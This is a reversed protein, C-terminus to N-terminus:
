APVTFFFTSGQGPISEAWIKGGHREVIRKCIALGLGTGPYENRHLRRFLGFIRENYKPDFGIGNDRVAITWVDEQLVATVAIKPPVDPQCYKLANSLLNQFVQELQTEDGSVFPLDSCTVTAGTEHISAHLAAASQAFAAQLNAQRATYPVDPQDHIARSYALLDHILHQMRSVGAEIFGSFKAPEPDNRPAYRRILLQSYINVTRLPEQLDHSAVYAFEELEQNAKRLDDETRKQDEIDTCTGFWSVVNGAVGIMPLARVLHWRWEGDHRRLRFEVEYTEGTELSRMWREQVREKDGPHVAHLWGTGLVEESSGGFYTTTQGNVYDVHGQPTATWVMQPISEALFRYRMEDDRLSEEAARRATIDVYVSMIGIVRGSSDRMPATSVSIDIPTGDKRQRRIERGTFGQGSLDQARMSRHEDMKDEPIFPLPKGIVEEETWGFMQEAAPNWLTINGQATLAVIALPSASILARLQESLHLAQLEAQRLDTVDQVLVVFGRVRGEPDTDPSYTVVLDRMSGTHDALRPEFTVREGRLVRDLYPRARSYHDAGTMELVTKGVIDARSVGFFQEYARNVRRYVEDADIYSMLAPVSEFVVELEANESRLDSINLSAGAMTKHASGYKNLM